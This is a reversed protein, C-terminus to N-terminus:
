RASTGSPNRAHCLTRAGSVALDLRREVAERQAEDIRARHDVLGRLPLLAMVLDEARLGASSTM